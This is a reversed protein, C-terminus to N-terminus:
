CSIPADLEAASKMSLSYELILNLIAQECFFLTCFYMSESICDVKDVFTLIYIQFSYVEQIGKM